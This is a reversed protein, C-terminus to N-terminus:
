HEKPLSVRFIAGGHPRNEATIQGSHLEVLAKIIYLGLGTGGVERTMAHEGQFFKDFIHPRHPLSIGIGTDQVRIVCQEKERRIELWVKGAATDWYFM